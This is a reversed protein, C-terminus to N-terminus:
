ELAAGLFGAETFIKAPDLPRILTTARKPRYELEVSWVVEDGLLAMGNSGWHFYGRSVGTFNQTRDFPLILIQPGKLGISLNSPGSM